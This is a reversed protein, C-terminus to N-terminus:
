LDKFQKQTNIKWTEKDNLIKLFKSSTGIGNGFSHICNIKKNKSENIANLIEKKNTDVHLIDSNLTRNQQRTGINISPIEFIESERIGVSSNGIILESNKLISLFYNFRISPYM